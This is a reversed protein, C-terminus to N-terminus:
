WTACSWLQNTVPLYDMWVGIALVEKLHHTLFGKSTPPFNKQLSFWHWCLSKLSRSPSPPHLKVQASCASFHSCLAVVSVVVPLCRFEKMYRYRSCCQLSGPCGIDAAPLCITGRSVQMWKQFLCYSSYETYYIAGICIMFHFIRGLFFDQWITLHHWIALSRKFPYKACM